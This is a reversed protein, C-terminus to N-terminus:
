ETVFLRSCTCDFLLKRKQQGFSSCRGCWESSLESLWTREEEELEEKEKGEEKEDDDDNEKEGVEEIERWYLGRKESLSREFSQRFQLVRTYRAITERRANRALESVISYFTAELNTYRVLLDRLRVSLLVATGITQREEEVDEEEEEEEEEEEAAEEEEEIEGKEEEEEKYEKELLADHIVTTESCNIGVIPDRREASAYRADFRHSKLVTCIDSVSSLQENASNDIRIDLIAFFTGGPNSDLKSPSAAAVAATTAIATARLARTRAFRACNTDRFQFSRRGPSDETFHKLPPDMSSYGCKADLLPREKMEKM